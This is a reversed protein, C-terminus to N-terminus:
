AGSTRGQGPAWGLERVMGVAAESYRWLEGLDERAANLVGGIAFGTVTRAIYFANLGDCAFASGGAVLLDFECRFAHLARGPHLLMWGAQGVGRM